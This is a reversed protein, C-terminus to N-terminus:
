TGDCSTYMFNIIVFHGRVIDDYLRVREGEHTTFAYNPIRERAPSEPPPTVEPAPAACASFLLFALLRLRM